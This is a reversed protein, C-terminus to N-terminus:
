LSSGRDVARELIFVRVPLNTLRDGYEWCAVVHWGEQGRSRLLNTITVLHDIQSREFRLYDYEYHHPLDIRLDDILELLDIIDAYAEQLASDNQDRVSMTQLWETREHIRQRIAQESAYM